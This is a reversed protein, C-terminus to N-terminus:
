SRWKLFTNKISPAYAHLNIQIFNHECWLCFFTNCKNPALWRDSKMATKLKKRERRREIHQHFFNEEWSIEREGFFLLTHPHWATKHTQPVHSSWLRFHSLLFLMLSPRDRAWFCYNRMEIRYFNKQNWKETQTGMFLNKRSILFIVRPLNREKGQTWRHTFYLNKRVSILVKQFHYIMTHCISIFFDSERGWTVNILKIMPWFFSLLWMQKNRTSIDSQSSNRHYSNM